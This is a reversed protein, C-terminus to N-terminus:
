NSRGTSGGVALRFVQVLEAFDDIGFAVRELQIQIVERMV